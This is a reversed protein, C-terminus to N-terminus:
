AAESEAKAPRGRKSKAAQEELLAMAADLQEKQEKMQERLAVLEASQAAKDKNGLFETAQKKLEHLGPLRVKAMLADPMDRVEEVTRIGAQNFATVQYKTLAPWTVLSTGYEPVDSGEKWAKYYPEIMSWRFKLFDRKMNKQETDPGPLDDKPMLDKVRAWITSTQIAHAPGYHVWDETKDYLGTERNRAPRQEFELVRISPRDM